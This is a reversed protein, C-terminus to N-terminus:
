RPAQKGLMHAVIEIRHHLPVPEGAARPVARQAIRLHQAIEPELQPALHRFRRQVRRRLGHQARVFQRRMQRRIEGIIQGLPGAHISEEALVVCQQVHAPAMRQPRPHQSLQGAALAFGPLRLSARWTRRM